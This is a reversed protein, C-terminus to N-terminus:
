RILIYGVVSVDQPPTGSADLAGGEDIKVDVEELGKRNWRLNLPNGGATAQFDALFIPAALFPEKFTITSFQSRKVRGTRSVEYALGDLTGTSPEWAIYSVAQPAGSIASAEQPRLQFQFGKKNVRGPQGVVGAPGQGNTVTAMVVPTHSFPESFTISHKPYTPDTEITGSEVSSGDLLRFRGREMVLYGVAEPAHPSAGTDWPQLSIDFGTQDVQRVRVVAPHAERYSLAKAVVIPDEFPKQLEVRKWTQDITVEGVELHGAALQESTASAKQSDSPSTSQAPGSPTRSTRSVVGGTPEEASEDGTSVGQRSVLLQTSASPTPLAANRDAQIDSSSLARNYIRVEDIRGRFFENSWIANGGIRLSRSTRIISGSVSRSSVQSGNVYLRLTSGNYTTAIHTWTNLPLASNGSLGQSSSNYVYGMPRNSSSGAYLAYALNSPQEKLLVTTRSTPTRTPYVWAELTMGSSLDLSSSDNVTVWDNTGDFFLARGYRGSTTWTAGSITGHNGRGSVDNLRTGSGENFNYAAVLGSRHVTVLGTKTVTNSGGSGTATLSVTYTGPTQYTYTPNRSTSTAGNGFTWRWSTVSGTSTDTFAVQVPASGVTPTANFAAVPAGSGPTSPAVINVENSFTSENGATDRAKLSIYYRQGSTLGSLTYSTQIGITASSPYQRSSTGYYVKYGALDTLTSGNANTTPATWNLQVSAAHVLTTTLILLALVSVVTVTCKRAIM